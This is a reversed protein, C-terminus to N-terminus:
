LKVPVYDRVTITDPTVNCSLALVKVGQGAVERLTQGFAPHTKDNPAFYRVGSMQIIFALWVEYGDQKAQLLETLHKVGRETPADPFLAVGNEELTVGKVEVFIQKDATELYFDFRSNRYQSEPKLFLIDGWPKKDELWEAFVKNPIQSDINIIGAGKRVAILDYSTKRQPNNSEQVYVLAGPVLIERCRGTNKVHCIEKRGDIEIYAIFRNPREIFRGERINSYKM